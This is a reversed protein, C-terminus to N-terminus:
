LCIQLALFRCFQCKVRKGLKNQKMVQLLLLLLLFLMDEEEEEEVLKGLVLVVGRV